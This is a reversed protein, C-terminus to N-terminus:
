LGYTSGVTSDKSIKVNGKNGVNYLDDHWNGGVYSSSQITLRGSYDNFIGGGDYSVYNALVTCGSLTLTGDNYIGGGVEWYTGYYEPGPTEGNFRLLSGTVSGTAKYANFIGAGAFAALNETVTSSSVTMSGANYIGGGNGYIGTFGGYLNPGNAVNESVTSGNVILTGTNYIGGGNGSGQGYSADNNSVTCNSVTLTGANYLGGGLSSALSNYVTCGSLTLLGYNLVAGGQGDNAHSTGGASVGEGDIIDLGSLTVTSGAGDVEFVRSTGGPGGFNIGSADGSITEPGHITLSKNIVLEGSTLGITTGALSPDFVITDGSKAAAIEARLSGPGSDAYTTVSLTSPMDRGELV